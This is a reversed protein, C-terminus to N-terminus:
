GGILPHAEAAGLTASLMDIFVRTKAPMLKRGPFVASATTSPLCWDPLVRRLHGLRVDPAAFHDSVAAIGAGARALRILLEPSNAGVRGPPLGQWHQDGHSLRWPTAEGSGGLMRVAQHQLLDQPHAPQGFEALYQPSAYLGASLETLRRASLLGDDPLAGMRLALDFGEGLLDVRRPSLDIDLTIGPFLAVFAALADALLVNAIDSPMSVRLRGSPAAQRRESLAAVAEVELAVQRAHELLERGFETLTQRRTTRLLLREGLRQELGALRRSVTSKPWGLQDAARSFSGLEAVSAFMLLDNPDIYATKSQDMTAVIKDM